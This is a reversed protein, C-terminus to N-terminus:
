AMAGSAAAGSGFNSSPFEAVFLIEFLGVIFAVDEEVGEAIGEEEDIRVCVDAECILGSAGKEAVALEAVAGDTFGEEVGAECVGEELAEGSALGGLGADDERLM